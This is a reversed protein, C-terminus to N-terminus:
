MSALIKAKISEFEAESILNQDLMAKAKALKAVPDETATAAESAPPPTNLYVGGSKAREEEMERVRRKERWDQELQQCVGYLKMAQDKDLGGLVGSRGNTAEVTLETSLLGQKIHVGEIDQWQFDSFNARGLMDPQFIVLRNSTAVVSDKRLSMATANQMAIYFIEENPTLIKAVEAAAKRQDGTLQSPDAYRVSIIEDGM